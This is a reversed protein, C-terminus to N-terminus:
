QRRLLPRRIYGLLWCEHGDAAIRISEAFDGGQDAGRM